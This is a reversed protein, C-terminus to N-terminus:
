QGTSVDPGKGTTRDSPIGVHTHLYLSLYINTRQGAMIIPETCNCGNVLLTSTCAPFSCASLDIYLVEFYAPYGYQLAWPWSGMTDSSTGANRSSFIDILKVVQM